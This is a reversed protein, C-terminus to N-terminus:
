GGGAAGRGEVLSSRLSARFRLRSLSKSTGGSSCGSDWPNLPVGGVALLQLEWALLGNPFDKAQKEFGDVEHVVYFFLAQLLVSTPVRPPPAFSSLFKRM